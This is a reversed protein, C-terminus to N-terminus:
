HVDDGVVSDLPITHLHYTISPDWQTSADKKKPELEQHPLDADIHAEQEPQQVQDEPVLQIIDEDQRPADLVAAPVEEAADM